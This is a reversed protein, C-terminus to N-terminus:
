HPRSLVLLDPMAIAFEMPLFMAQTCQVPRELVRLKDALRASGRVRQPTQGFRRDERSFSNSKGFRITDACISSSRLAKSRDGANKPEM